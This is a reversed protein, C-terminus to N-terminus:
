FGKAWNEPEQLEIETKSAFNEHQDLAKGYFGNTIRRWIGDKGQLLLASLNVPPGLIQTTTLFTQSLKMLSSVTPNIALYSYGSVPTNKYKGKYFIHLTKRNSKL